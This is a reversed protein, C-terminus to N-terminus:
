GQLIEVLVDEIRIDSDHIGSGILVLTTRIENNNELKQVQEWDLGAKIACHELIFDLDTPGILRVRIYGQAKLGQMYHDIKEKWRGVQGMTRRLYRYTRRAVERTGEPTLSYRLNRGNIKHITVWGKEALRKIIANTMGLSLNLTKAISRQSYSEPTSKESQDESGPESGRTQNLIELVTLEPDHSDLTPLFLTDTHMTVQPCPKAQAQRKHANVPDPPRAKKDLSM